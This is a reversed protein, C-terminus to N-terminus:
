SWPRGCSMSRLEGGAKPRHEAPQKNSQHAEGRAEVQFGIALHLQIILLHNVTVEKGPLLGKHNKEVSDQFVLPGTIMVM